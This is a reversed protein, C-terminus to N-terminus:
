LSSRIMYSRGIFLLVVAQIIPILAYALTGMGQTNIMLSIQAGPLIWQLAESLMPLYHGIMAIVISSIAWFLIAFITAQRASNAYLSLLGMMATYPLLIISINIFVLTASTLAAGLQSADRSGALALTALVTIAVLIMQILMYGSFRGFFLADRGVRLTIFRFTGRAKDSAFQDACVFISFLPFLYLAAVWFVAMEAVPWEFLNGVTAEGFVSAVLQKFNPDLLFSSAKRIPYWLILGWVLAFAVLAIVGRRNFLIKTLEHKALLATNVM